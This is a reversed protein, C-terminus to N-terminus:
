PSRTDPAMIVTRAQIGAQLRQLWAIGEDDPLKVAQSTVQFMQNGLWGIKAVMSDQQSTALDHQCERYTNM